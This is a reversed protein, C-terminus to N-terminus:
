FKPMVETVKGVLMIPRIKEWNRLNNSMMPKGGNERNVAITIHPKTNKSGFGSVGVAMVKDDIAYDETNLRVNMGLYKEFEPDIEGLNITMHHAVIEWGEPILHKRNLYALLSERSKDDLVVASYLVKSMTNIDEKIYKNDNDEYYVINENMFNINPNKQKAKDLFQQFVPTAEEITPFDEWYGDSYYSDIEKEAQPTMMENSEGLLILNDDEYRMVTIFNVPLTTTWDRNYTILGLEALKKLIYEHVHGSSEQEIYLNGERDIVGRADYGINSLTKPNKIIVLGDNGGNYVVEDKAEESQKNRYQQEFDHFEPKINFRKEAYKDGVGEDQVNAKPFQATLEAKDNRVKDAYVKLLLTKQVDGIEKGKLGMTMLDNGNLALENVTKPYKGSLLDQAGNIIAQPLITSKLAQPSILYINHAIARAAVIPMDENNLDANYALELAKIEKYSDVNGKLNKLFFEAPNEIVGYTMLFIFEGMTKVNPFDRRDIQSPKINKGFIAAFLGTEVLLEVATLAINKM